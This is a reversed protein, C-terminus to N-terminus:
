QTYDKMWALQRRTRESRRPAKEVPMEAPEAQQVPEASPSQDAVQEDAPVTPQIVVEPEPASPASPEPEGTLILQRRNRCYVVGDVKVKYSKPGSTKVCPGASWMQKGPLRFRVTEGPEIPELPKTKASPNYFFAQREKRGLLDQSDQETSHSPQLLRVAIPLLTKCHRGM